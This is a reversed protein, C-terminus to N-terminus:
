IPWISSKTTVGIDLIKDLGGIHKGGNVSWLTIESSISMGELCVTLVLVTYLSILDISKSNNESLILVFKSFIIGLILENFVHKFKFRLM